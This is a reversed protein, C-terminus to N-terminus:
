IDSLYYASYTVNLGSYPLTLGKENILATGIENHRYWGNYDKRINPDSSNIEIWILKCSLLSVMNMMKVKQPQTPIYNPVLAYLAVNHKSNIDVSYEFDLGIIKRTEANYIGWSNEREFNKFVIFIPQKHYKYLDVFPIEQSERDLTIEVDQGDKDSSEGYLYKESVGYIHCFAKTYKKPVSRRGCEWSSIQPISIKIGEGMYQQLLLLLEKQSYNADARLQALRQCVIRRKEM